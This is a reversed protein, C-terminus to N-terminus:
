YKLRNILKETGQYQKEKASRPLILVAVFVIWQLKKVKLFCENIANWQYDRLVNKECKEGAKNIEWLQLKSM